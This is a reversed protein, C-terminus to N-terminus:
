YVPSDKVGKYRTLLKVKIQDTSALVKFKGSQSGLGNLNVPGNVAVAVPPSDIPISGM